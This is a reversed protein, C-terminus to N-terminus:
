FSSFITLHKPSSLCPHIILLIAPQNIHYSIIGHLFAMAICSGFHFQSQINTLVYVQVRSPFISRPCPLSGVTHLVTVSNDDQIRLVSEERGRGM